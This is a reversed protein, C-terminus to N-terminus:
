RDEPKYIHVAITVLAGEPFMLDPSELALMAFYHLTQAEQDDIPFSTVLPVVLDPKFNSM